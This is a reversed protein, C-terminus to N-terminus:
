KRHATIGSGKKDLPESGLNRISPWDVLPDFASIQGVVKSIHQVTM